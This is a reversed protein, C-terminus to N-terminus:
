ISRPEFLRELNNIASSWGEHHSTRDSDTPLGFHTMVLFTDNGRPSLEIRIQTEFGALGGTEWAWTFALVDPAAVETYVGHAPVLGGDPRQMEIRFRGGPRADAEVRAVTYIEPCMWRQLLEPRTLAEFVTAPPARLLRTMRVATDAELTSM